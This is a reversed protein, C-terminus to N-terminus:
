LTPRSKSHAQMAGRFQDGAMAAGARRSQVLQRLDDSCRVEILAAAGRYRRRPSTPPACRGVCIASRQRGIEVLSNLFRHRVWLRGGPSLAMPEAPRQVDSWLRWRAVPSRSAPNRSAEASSSKLLRRREDSPPHGFLKAIRRASIRLPTFVLHRRSRCSPSAPTCSCSGPGVCVCLNMYYQTSNKSFYRNFLRGLQRLSLNIALAVDALPLPEEINATM